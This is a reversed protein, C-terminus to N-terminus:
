DSVGVAKNYTAESIQVNKKQSINYRYCVNKGTSSKYGRHYVYKPTIKEVQWAKFSSVITKRVANKLDYRILRYTSTHYLTMSDRPSILSAFYAYQGSYGSGLGYTAAVTLTGSKTNYIYYTNPSVMGSNGTGDIVFRKKYGYAWTGNAIAEFKKTKVTFRCASGKGGPISSELYLSGDYLARLNYSYFNTGLKTLRKKAGTSLNQQIISYTNKSQGVAYSLYFINTSTVVVGKAVREGKVSLKAAVEGTDAYKLTATGDDNYRITYNAAEARRPAAFLMLCIVALLGAFYLFGRKKM